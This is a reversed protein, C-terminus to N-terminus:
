VPNEQVLSHSIVSVMSMSDNWEGHGKQLKSVEGRDDMVRVVDGSRYLTTDVQSLSIYMYLLIIYMYLSMFEM